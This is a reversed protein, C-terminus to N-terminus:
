DFRGTRIMKQLREHVKVVYIQRDVPSNPAHYRGVGCWMVVTKCERTNSEKRVVYAMARVAQCPNNVIDEVKMGYRNVFYPVWSATNLQAPGLDYTGNRNRSVAPHGNSEQAIMALLVIQPVDYDVSARRVCEVPIRAPVVIAISPEAGPLTPPMDM